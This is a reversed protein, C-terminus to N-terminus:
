RHLYHLGVLQNSSYLDTSSNSPQLYTWKNSVWIVSIYPRCKSKSQMQHKTLNICVTFKSHVTKLTSHESTHAGSDVAVYGFDVAVWGFHAPYYIAIISIHIKFIYTYFQCAIEQNIKYTVPLVTARWNHVLTQHATFQSQAASHTPSNARM